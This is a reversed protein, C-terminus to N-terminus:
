KESVIQCFKRDRDKEPYQWSYAFHSVSTIQPAAKKIAEMQLNLSPRDKMPKGWVGAIAPMITTQGKSMSIVRQVQEGICDATNEGCLGYSMPHWENVSLFHNWPQIRTDYGQGVVKNGEPFFVAGSPIQLQGAPYSAIALFDLIGQAAHAVTLQWLDWKIWTQRQEPPLQLEVPSPKRGQWMPSGEQPYLVDVQQIDDASVFGKTIFRKILEKGKNNGARQILAQLSSQGYIWLDKVDSAVSQGGSQRPYRIYDFLIGDPRRRLISQVMIYYDRRAEQNYPDIFVQPHDDVVDKSFNGRGDRALTSVRDSRQSYNYGFNMTFLWAYVKLGRERGKNIVEALLDTKETGPTRLVSSWITNNDASPLLVQSDYFVEINVQNYGKDVIHDLIEEIAGPRADCPYVRLWIAQTKFHNNNRCQALKLAHKQIISNYNNKSNVDKLAAERLNDKQNIANQSFRCYDDGAAEVPQTIMAQTLLSGSTLIAAILKTIKKM